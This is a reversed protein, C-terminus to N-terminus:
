IHETISSIRYTHSRAHHEGKGVCSVENPGYPSSGIKLHKTIVNLHLAGHYSASGWLVLATSKDSDDGCLDEKTALQEGRDQNRTVVRKQETGM